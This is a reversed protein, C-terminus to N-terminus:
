TGDTDARRGARSGPSDHRGRGIGAIRRVLPRTLLGAVRAALAGILTMVPLTGAGFALMTLAGGLAGGATAALTLAAYVLGCPVFGWIAGLGVGIALTALACVAFLSSWKM